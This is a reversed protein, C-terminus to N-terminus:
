KGYGGQGLVAVVRLASHRALLTDLIEAMPAARDKFLEAVGQPAFNVIRQRSAAQEQARLRAQRDREERVDPHLAGASARIDLLPSRLLDPPLRPPNAFHFAPYREVSALRDLHARQAAIQAQDVRYREDRPAGEEPACIILTKGHYLALWAEWQTYPLAPG